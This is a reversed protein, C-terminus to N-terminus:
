VYDYKYKHAYKYEIFTYTRLDSCHDWDIIYKCQQDNDKTYVCVGRWLGLSPYEYYQVESFEVEGYCDQYIDDGASIVSNHSLTVIM